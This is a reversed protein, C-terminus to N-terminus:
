AAAQEAAQAKFYTEYRRANRDSMGLRRAAEERSLHQVRTLEWYEERRGEHKVPPPGAEPQGARNWRIWCPRCWGRAYHGRTEGCAGCETIRLQRKPKPKPKATSPKPKNRQRNANGHCLKCQSYLGDRASPRRYFETRPKREKCTTCQKDTVEPTEEPPLLGLVDLLDSAGLRLIARTALERETEEDTKGRGPMALHTQDATRWRLDGTPRPRTMTTV